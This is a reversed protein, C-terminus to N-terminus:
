VRDKPRWYLNLLPKADALWPPPDCALPLFNSPPLKLPHTLHGPYEALFLRVYKRAHTPGWLGTEGGLPLKKGLRQRVTKLTKLVASSYAKNMWCRIGCCGRQEMALRALGNKRWRMSESEKDLAMCWATTTHRKPKCYERLLFAIYRCTIAFENKGRTHIPM